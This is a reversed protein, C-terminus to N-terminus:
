FFTYSLSTVSFHLHDMRTLLGRYDHEFEAVDGYVSAGPLNRSRRILNQNEYEYMYQGMNGMDTRVLQGLHDYVYFDSRKIVGTGDYYLARLLRGDADREAAIRHHFRGPGSYMLKEKWRDGGYVIDFQYDVEGPAKYSIEKRLRGEGDYVCGWILTGAPGFKEQRTRSGNRDYELLYSRFGEESPVDGAVRVTNGMVSKVACRGAAWDCIPIEEEVFLPDECSEVSETVM